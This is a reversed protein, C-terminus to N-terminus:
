VKEGMFLYLPIHYLHAYESSYFAVMNVNSFGVSKCIDLVDWGFDYFVLSGESSLPNGHYVAEELFELKGNRVLARVKTEATFMFPISFLLLGGHKLTRYAEKFAAEIDSVHEYVDNSIIIDLSENEFSLNLADEHIVGNVVEGSPIDFGMFESGILNFYPSFAKKAFNYFPTVFEYIFITGKVECSKKFLMSKIKWFLNHSNHQILTETKNYLLSMMARQRNNLKCIPCLLHERFNIGFPNAYTWCFSFNVNRRCLVCFGKWFGRKDKQTTMNLQDCTRRIIEMEPGQRLVDYQSQNSVLHFDPLEMRLATKNSSKVKHIGPSFIKLYPEERSKVFPNKQKQL